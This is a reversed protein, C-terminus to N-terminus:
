LGCEVFHVHSFILKCNIQFKCSIRKETSASTGSTLKQKAQEYQYFLFDAKAFNRRVSYDRCSDRGAPLSGTDFTKDRMPMTTGAFCIDFLKM